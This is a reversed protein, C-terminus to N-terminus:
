QFLLRTDALSRLSWYCVRPVLEDRGQIRRLIVGEPRYSGSFDPYDPSGSHGRKTLASMGSPRIDVKRGLAATLNSHTFLAAVSGNRDSPHSQLSHRDARILTTLLSDPIYHGACAQQHNQCVGEVIQKPPVSFEHWQHNDTKSQHNSPYVKGPFPLACTREQGNESRSIM